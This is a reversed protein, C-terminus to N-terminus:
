NIDQNWKIGPLVETGHGKGPHDFRTIGTVALPLAKGRPISPRNIARLLCNIREGNEHAGQGPPWRIPGVEVRDPGEQCEHPGAPRIMPESGTPPKVGSWLLQSIGQGHIRDVRKHDSRRPLYVKHRLYSPCRGRM